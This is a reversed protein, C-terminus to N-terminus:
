GGALAAPIGTLASGVPGALFPAMILAIEPIQQKPAVSLGHEQLWHNPDKGALIDPEESLIKQASQHIALAMPVYFAAMMLSFATGWYMGLMESFNVVQQSISKDAVLASPWRLWTIMHLIGAVLMTSGVNVVLKLHRMQHEHKELLSNFSIKECVVLCCGSLLTLIPVLAAVVNLFYVLSKIINLHMSTYRGSASLTEYTFFFIYSYNNRVHASYAMHACVLATILLGVAAFAIQGRTHLSQRIVRFCFIFVFMLTTYFLLLTSAWAIRARAESFLNISPKKAGQLNLHDVLRDIDFATSAFIINALMLIAIPLIAFHIARMYNAYSIQIDSKSM